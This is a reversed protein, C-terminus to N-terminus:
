IPWRSIRERWSREFVLNGEERVILSGSMHFHSRSATLLTEIESVFSRGAVIMEYRETMEARASLPDNGRISMDRKLDHSLTVDVDDFNIVGEGFVGGRGDTIYTMTDTVLDLHTTRDFQGDRLKTAPAQAAQRAPPLSADLEHDPRTRVPLEISTKGTHVTLTAADASPWSIPWYATSIAVRIRHGAKFCHGAMKLPIRISYVKGPVLEVPTEFGDLHNLNRPQYSVRLSTGQPDVDNFRVCLQATPKDVSFTLDLVPRGLIDLDAVLPVTDFVLSFGDDLRQDAPMESICGAGMWEGSTSGTYAPSLISIWDESAPANSAPVLGARTLAYSQM